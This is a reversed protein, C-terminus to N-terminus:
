WMPTPNAPYQFCVTASSLSGQPREERPPWQEEICSSVLLFVQGCSPLLSMCPLNPVESMSILPLHGQGKHFSPAAAATAGPLPAPMECNHYSMSALTVLLQPWPCRFPPATPPRGSVDLCPLPLRLLEAPPLTGSPDLQGSCSCLLPLPQATAPSSAKQSHSLVLPPSSLVPPSSSPPDPSVKSFFTCFCRYVLPGSDQKLRMSLVSPCAYAPFNRYIGPWAPQDVHHHSGPYGPRHLPSGTEISSLM